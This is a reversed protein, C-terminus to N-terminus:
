DRDQEFQLKAVDFYNQSFKSTVKSKRNFTSNSTDTSDHHNHIDSDRSISEEAYYLRNKRPRLTMAALLKPNTSSVLSDSTINNTDNNPA